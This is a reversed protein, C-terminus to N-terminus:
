IDIIKTIGLKKAHLIGDALILRGEADTNGVEVTLGNQYTIVDSPLMANGDSLNQVLPLIATVNIDDTSHALLKMTGAVAASGGMDMKMNSIDRATKVNVGGSDFTVGKGVLAIPETVENRNLTLVVLKPAHVSGKAVAHIGAFESESLTLGEIIEVQVDTNEFVKKLKEAYMAPTLHNSPENCLDRTFHVANDKNKAQKDLLEFQDINLTLNLQPLDTPEKKYTNFQYTAMHWGELFALTREKISHETNLSTLSVSVEGSKM